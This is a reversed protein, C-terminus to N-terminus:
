FINGVNRVKRNRGSKLNKIKNQMTKNTLTINFSMLESFDKRSAKQVQLLTTM